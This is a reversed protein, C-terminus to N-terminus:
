VAAVLKDMDGDKHAAKVANMLRASEKINGGVMQMLYDQGLEERISNLVEEMTKAAQPNRAPKAAKGEGDKKPLNRLIGEYLEEPSFPKAIHDNMGAERCSEVYEEMINATLAIIPIRRYKKGMARISRTADIGSKGPMNVDMLVMDFDTNKVAAIADEANNVATVEHKKHTLLRVVIQQNILNDEVVLIHLPPIDAQAAATKGPKAAAEAVPKEYPLEFWFASGKGPESACGIRGGMLEVLSKTISLGLGTGGYRRSISDDGQAFASFLRNMSERTMGIGTDKVEVRLMPVAGKVLSARLTVGGQETFKVANNLLNMVTQQLRHPDGHVMQPVDKQIAMDMLLGKDDALQRMITLSNHLMAHFDFNIKSITLKGSEVKSFDLIDNLTNLLTKSCERITVVFQKQEETLDTEKLFDIMGFIGTMPTRIEHSMLALFSSKARNAEDARKASKQMQHKSDILQLTSNRIKLGIFFVYVAFLVLAGGIYPTEQVHWNALTVGAAYLVPLGIDFIMMGLMAASASAYTATVSFVFIYGLLHEYLYQSYFPMFLLWLWPLMYLLRNVCLEFIIGNVARPELKDAQRIIRGYLQRQRVLLALGWAMVGLDILWGEWGHPLGYMKYRAIIFFTVVALLNVLSARHNTAYMVLQEKKM